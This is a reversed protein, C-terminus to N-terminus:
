NIFHVNFKGAVCAYIWFCCLKKSWLVSETFSVVTLGTFIPLKFHKLKVNSLNGIAATRQRFNEQIFSMLKSLKENNFQWYCLIFYGYTYISGIMIYDILDDFTKDFNLILTLTQLIALHIVIFHWFAKVLSNLIMKLVKLEEPLFCFNVPQMSIIKLFIMQYAFLEGSDM